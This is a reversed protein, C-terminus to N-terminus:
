FPPETDNEPPPTDYIVGGYSIFNAEAVSGQAFVPPSSLGGYTPNSNYQTTTLYQGNPARWPANKLQTYCPGCIFLPGVASDWTYPAEGPKNHQTLIYVGHGENAHNPCHTVLCKLKSEESPEGMGVTRELARIYKDKASPDTNSLRQLNRLNRDM